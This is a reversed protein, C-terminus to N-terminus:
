EYSLEKRFKKPVKGRAKHLIDDRDDHMELRRFMKVLRYMRKAMKKIQKRKYWHLCGGMESKESYVKYDIIKLATKHMYNICKESSVFQLIELFRAIFYIQNADVDDHEFKYELQWPTLCKDTRFLIHRMWMYYKRFKEHIEDDENTFVDSLFTPYKELEGEFMIKTNWMFVYLVKQVFKKWVTHDKLTFVCLFWWDWASHSESDDPAYDIIKWWGDKTRGDRDRDWEHFRISDPFYQRMIHNIWWFRHSSNSGCKEARLFHVQENKYFADSYNDRANELCTEPDLDPIDDMDLELPYHIIGRDDTYRDAVAEKYKEDDMLAQLKERNFGKFNQVFKPEMIEDMLTMKVWRGGVRKSKGSAMSLMLAGSVIKPLM